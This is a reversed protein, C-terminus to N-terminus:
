EGEGACDLCEPASLAFRGPDAWTVDLLRAGRHIEWMSSARGSSIQTIRMWLRLSEVRVEQVYLHFRNEVHHVDFLCSGVKVGRDKM